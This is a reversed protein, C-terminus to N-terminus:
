MEQPWSLIDGDALHACPPLPLYLLSPHSWPWYQCCGCHWFIPLFTTLVYAALQPALSSQLLTQLLVTSGPKVHLACPGLLILTASPVPSEVSPVFSTDYGLSAAHFSWVQFVWLGRHHRLFGLPEMLAPITFEQAVGKGELLRSSHRM